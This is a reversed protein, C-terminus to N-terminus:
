RRSIPGTSWSGAPTSREYFRMLLQGVHDQRGRDTRRDGCHQGPEAVFSLDEIVPTDPQYSFNVHEFEVGATARRVM